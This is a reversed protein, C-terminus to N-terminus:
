PYEALTWCVISPPALSCTQLSILRCHGVSLSLLYDGSGGERGGQQRAREQGSDYDNISALM